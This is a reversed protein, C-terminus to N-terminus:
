RIRLSAIVLSLVRCVVKREEIKRRFKFLFRVYIQHKDPAPVRVNGVIRVGQLLGAQVERLLDDPVFHMWHETSFTEHAIMFAAKKAPSFAGL